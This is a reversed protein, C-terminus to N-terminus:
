YAEYGVTFHSTLTTSGRLQLLCANVQHVFLVHFSIYYLGLKVGAPSTSLGVLDLAPFVSFRWRHGQGRYRLPQRM